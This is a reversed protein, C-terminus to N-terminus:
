KRGGDLPKAAELEDQELFSPRQGFPDPMILDVQSADGSGIPSPPSAPQPSLTVPWTAVESPPLFFPSQELKPLVQAQFRDYLTAMHAGYSAPNDTYYGHEKLAQAAGVPDGKEFFALAPQYHQAMLRWYARAGDDATPYAAFKMPKKVTAGNEVETATLVFYPREDSWSKANGFNNNWIAGGGGTEHAVHAWSVGLMAQSPPHGFLSAFANQLALALAVDALPTRRTEVQPM